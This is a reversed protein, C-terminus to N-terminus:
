KFERRILKKRYQDYNPCYKYVIKYFDESHNRVYYHALEHIIVSDIIELSFHILYTNLIIKHSAYTNSGFNTKKFYMSVNYPVEIGMIKEYYHVRSSLFPLMIKKVNKYFNDVDKFLFSKDLIKVFGDKISILDGLVYVGDKQFPKNKNQLEDNKNILNEGFKNLGEYIKEIKVNSPSSVEFHDDKFRYYIDRQTRDKIILIVKYLNDNINVYFEKKNM